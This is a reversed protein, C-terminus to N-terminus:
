MNQLKKRIPGMLTGNKPSYIENFGLIEFMSNIYADLYGEQTISGFFDKVDGYLHGKIDCSFFNQQTCFFVIRRNTLEYEGYVRRQGGDSMSLADLIAGTTYEQVHVAVNEVLNM